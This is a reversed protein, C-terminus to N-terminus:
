NKSLISKGNTIIIGNAHRSFPPKIYIVFTKNKFTPKEVSQFTIINEQKVQNKENERDIKEFLNLKKQTKPQQKQKPKIFNETSYTTMRQSTTKDEASKQNALAKARETSVNGSLDVGNIEVNKLGDTNKIKKYPNSHRKLPRKAIVDKATNQQTEIKQPEVKKPAVNSLFENKTPKDM